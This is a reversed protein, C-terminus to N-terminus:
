LWEEEEPPTEAEEPPPNAAREAERAAEEAARQARGILRDLESLYQESPDDRTLRPGMLNRYRAFSERARQLAQIQDLGPFDAQATRYMLGLNFYVEPMNPSSALVRDYAAKAEQWRRLSRYADGLNLHVAPLTPNLRSVAEFQALAGAYNGSRLLLTGLQMRAESYSPRLEVARELESVVERARGTERGLVQANLFHLEADNPAASLANTLISQALEKRDQALSAKILARLAPVYREDCRLARRAADWAQEYRQNDVLVEAHIAQLELNSPFRRALPEVVALAGTRDNRRMAIAILGRVAPEYDEQIRLAQRYYETAQTENGARDALVGLNFAAHYSRPDQALAAMFATRAGEPNNNAAASVGQRIHSQAAASMPPRAPPRCAESDRAGWRNAAPAAQTGSGGATATGGPAPAPQPNPDSMPDDPDVPQEQPGVSGPPRELDTATGGATEGGATGEGSGATEESEGKNCGTSVCAPGLLLAVLASSRLWRPCRSSVAIVQTAM